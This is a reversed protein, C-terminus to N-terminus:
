GGGSPPPMMGPPPSQGPPPFQGPPQPPMGPPMAPQLVFNLVQGQGKMVTVAKEATAGAWTAKITYQDPPLWRLKYTGDQGTQAQRVLAGDKYAEICAWPVPLGSPQTVAGEIWGVSATIHVTKRVPGLEEDNRSGGDGPRMMGMDDFWWLDVVDLDTEMPGIAYGTLEWTNSFGERAIWRVAESRTSELVYRCRTEDRFVGHDVKQGDQYLDASDADSASVAYNFWNGSEVETAPGVNGGLVEPVPWWYMYENVPQGLAQASVLIAAGVVCQWKTMSRGGEDMRPKIMREIDSLSVLVICAPPITM